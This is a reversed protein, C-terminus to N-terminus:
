NDSSSRYELIKSVRSVRTIEERLNSVFARPDLRFKWLEKIYSEFSSPPALRLNGADCVPCHTKGTKDFTLIRPMCSPKDFCETCHSIAMAGKGFRCGEPCKDECARCRAELETDDKVGARIAKMVACHSYQGGEAFKKCRMMVCKKHCFVTERENSHIHECLIGEGSLCTYGLASRIISADCDPNDCEFNKVNIKKMETGYPKDRNNRCIEGGDTCYLAGAEGAKKDRRVQYEEDSILRVSGCSNCRIAVMNGSSSGAIITADGSNASLLNVRAFFTLMYGELDSMDALSYVTVDNKQGIRFVRGIRQEMAVPDVTTQFNIAVSSSQLNTGETASRHMALFVTSESKEFRESYDGRGSAVLLRDKFEPDAELSKLVESRVDASGRAAYDFFVLVRENKHRRLIKKLYEIKQCLVSKDADKGKETPVLVNTVRENMDALYTRYFDLAGERKAGEKSFNADSLGMATLVEKIIKGQSKAAGRVGLRMEGYRQATMKEGRYEVYAEESLESFGKMDIVTDDGLKVCSPAKDLPLFFINTPYKKKNNSHGSKNRVMISRMLVDHYATAVNTHVRAAVDENEGLFKNIVLLKRYASLSEFPEDTSGFKPDEYEEKYFRLLAEREEDSANATMEYLMAADIFTSVTTAGSCKEERYVKYEKLYTPTHRGSLDDGSDDIFDEPNGGSSRIFYWLRFMKELNGSHPTASLLLCYPKSNAKKIAALLSVRYMFGAYKEDGRDCLHHAEDIVIVDYLAKMLESSTDWTVFQETEVIIPMKPVTVGGSSTVLTNFRPLREGSSLKPFKYLVGEGLGFKNELVDVWADYVQSPVILLMNSIRGRAALESLVACAEFTKGSGVPDALLGFGRRQQLFEHAANYQGATLVNGSNGHRVEDYAIGYKSGYDAEYASVPIKMIGFDDYSDIVGVTKEAKKLGETYASWETNIEASNIGAFVNRNGAGSNKFILKYKSM